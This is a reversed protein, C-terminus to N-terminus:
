RPCQGFPWGTSGADKQLLLFVLTKETSTRSLYNVMCFFFSCISQYASISQHSHLNHSQILGTIQPANSSLHPCRSLWYKALQHLLSEWLWQNNPLYNTHLPFLITLIESCNKFLYNKLFLLLLLLCRKFFCYNNANKNANKVQCRGQFVLEMHIENIYCKM